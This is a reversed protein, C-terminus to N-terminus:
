LMLKLHDGENQVVYGGAILERLARRCTSITDRHPGQLYDHAIKEFILPEEPAETDLQVLTVYLGKADLSINPDELM